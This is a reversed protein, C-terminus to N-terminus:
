RADDALCDFQQIDRYEDEDAGPWAIKKIRVFFEFGHPLIDQKAFLMPSLAYHDSDQMRIPSHIHFPHGFQDPQGPRHLHSKVPGEIHDLVWQLGQLIDDGEPQSRMRVEPWADVAMAPAPSIESSTEVPGTVPDDDHGSAPDSFIIGKFDDAHGTDFLDM